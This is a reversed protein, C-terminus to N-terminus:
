RQPSLETQPIPSMSLYREARCASTAGILMRSVSAWHGVLVDCRTELRICTEYLCGLDSSWHERVWARHEGSDDVEWSAFSDWGFVLGDVRLGSEGVFVIGSRIKRSYSGQLLARGIPEDVRPLQVPLRHRRIM